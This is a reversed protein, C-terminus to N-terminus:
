STVPSPRCEMPPAARKRAPEWDQSSRRAKRCSRGKRARFCGASRPPPRRGARRGKRRRSPGTRRRRGASRRRCGPSPVASGTGVRWAQATCASSSAPAVRTPLVMVSSTESPM